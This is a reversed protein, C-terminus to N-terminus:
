ILIRWCHVGEDKDDGEEKCIGWGLLYLFDGEPIIDAVGLDLVEAEGFSCIFGDDSILISFM